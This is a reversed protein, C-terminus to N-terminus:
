RRAGVEPLARRGPRRAERAARAAADAVRAARVAGVAHDRREDLPVGPEPRAHGGVALDAGDRRLLARGERRPGHHRGRSGASAALGLITLLLPLGAAVLSGFALVLIAMTVPWSILESKMMATKNAENFDSWMGPAGTLSVSVRDTGVDALDGKLEDAARVMETPSAAAGGQVVATRGDRSIQPESVSAVRGDADLIATVQQLTPALDGDGHVVVMLAYAGQGGFSAEIEDRATVSESGIAEWGAGSLAHEAKPAFVGLGIAIAVWSLVVLRVHSAMWAGLRGLPGVTTV